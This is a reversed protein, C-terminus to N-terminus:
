KAGYKGPTTGFKKKFIRIFHSLDPFGCVFCTETVSKKENLMRKANSLKVSELYAKPSIHLYKQFWRNLTSASIFFVDELECANTLTSYNFNIYDLIKQLNEPLHKKRLGQEGVDIQQLLKFINLMATASSLKDGVRDAELLEYFLEILAKKEEQPLRLRPTNVKPLLSLINKNEDSIWLCFHKHLCSSHYICHHFENPYTLIIDGSTIPYIQNKVLFSVDGEVNLYLETCGHIHSFDSSRVTTDIFGARYHLSYKINNLDLLHTTLQAEEM